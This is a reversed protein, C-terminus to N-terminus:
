LTPLVSPHLEQVLVNQLLDLLTPVSLPSLLSSLRFSCDCVILLDSWMPWLKRYSLSVLGHGTPGGQVTSNHHLPRVLIHDVPSHSPLGGWYEQRSFGMFLIFLCFSLVSFSSNGPQYSGLISSSILQSIVGSHIFPHLWLLFSVWNHIPSIISAPNLATYLLIAHVQFTLGMFWPLNSTTLWSIVVTLM